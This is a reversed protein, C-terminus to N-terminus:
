GDHRVLNTKVNAVDGILSVNLSPQVTLFSVQDVRKTDTADDTTGGSAASLGKHISAAWVQKAQRAVVSEVISLAQGEKGAAVKTAFIYKGACKETAGL